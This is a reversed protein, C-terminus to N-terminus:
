REVYGKQDRGAAQDAVEAAAARKEAATRLEANSDHAAIGEARQEDVDVAPAKKETDSM